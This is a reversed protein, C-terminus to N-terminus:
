SLVKYGKNVLYQQNIRATHKSDRAKSLSSDATTLGNEM